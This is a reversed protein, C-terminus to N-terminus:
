RTGGSRKSPHWHLIPAEALRFVGNILLGLIGAIIILAYMQELANARQAQVIAQGLGAVGGIMETVVAVILAIAASLRLGTAVFPLTSPVVVRTVTQTRGLRYSRAMSMAVDDVQQIGYIVQTLLPWVAAFVILTLKMQLSPGWLLLGLPILAIPPIPKLFEILARTSELLFRSSGLLLGLPIAIIGTLMVGIGWSYVTSSLHAWFQPDSPLAFLEILVASAPPVVSEPLLGTVSVLQWVCLMGLVSAVGILVNPRLLKSLADMGHRRPAGATHPSRVTTM